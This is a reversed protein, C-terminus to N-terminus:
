FPPPPPPPAPSPAAETSLDFPIFALSLMKTVADVLAQTPKHSRGFDKKEGGASAGDEVAEEEAEDDEETRRM